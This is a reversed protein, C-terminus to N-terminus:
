LAFNHCQMLQGQHLVQNPQRRNVTQVGSTTSQVQPQFPGVINIRGATDLQPADHDVGGDKPVLNLEVNAHSDVEVVM